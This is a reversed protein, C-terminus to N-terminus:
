LGWRNFWAVITILAYAAVTGLAIVFWPMPDRPAPRGTREAVPERGRVVITSTVMDAFTRRRTDFLPWLFGLYCPLADAIHALQRLFSRGIGVPRHTRPDVVRLGTVVKGLSRGTRGQAVVTNVVSLILITVLMLAEVWRAVDAPYIPVPGNGDSGRRRTNEIAEDYLLIELDAAVDIAFGKNDTPDYLLNWDIYIALALLAVVVLLDIFGAAM